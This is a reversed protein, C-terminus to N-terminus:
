KLFFSVFSKKFDDNLVRMELDQLQIIRSVPLVIEFESLFGDSSETEFLTKMNKSTQRYIELTQRILANSSELRVHMSKFEQM